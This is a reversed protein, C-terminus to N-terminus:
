DVLSTGADSMVFEVMESGGEGVRAAWNVAKPYIVSGPLEASSGRQLRGAWVPAALLGVANCCSITGHAGGVGGAPPHERKDALYLSM